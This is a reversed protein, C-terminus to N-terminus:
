AGPEFPNQPKDSKEGRSQADVASDFGRGDFGQIEDSSAGDNTSCIVTRAKTSAISLSGSEGASVKYKSIAFGYESGQSFRKMPNSYTITPTDLSFKILDTLELESDKSANGLVEWADSPGNPEEMVDLILGSGGELILSGRTDLTLHVRVHNDVCESSAILTQRNQEARVASQPLFVAGLLAGALAFKGAASQRRSHAEFM